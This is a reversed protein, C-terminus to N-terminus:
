SDTRVNVVFVSKQGLDYPSIICDVSLTLKMKTLIAQGLNEQSREWVRMAEWKM